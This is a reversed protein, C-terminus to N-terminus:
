ENIDLFSINKIPQLSSISIIYRKSKYLTTYEYVTKSNISYINQKNTKNFIRKKVNLTDIANIPQQLGIGLSKVISEKKCWMSYFAILAENKQQSTIYEIEEKTCILHLIDHFLFQKDIYEIDIGVESKKSIAIVLHNKTKSMNFFFPNGMLFPKGYINKEFVFLNTKQQLIHTLLYNLMHSSTLKNKKIDLTSLNFCVVGVNDNNLVDSKFLSQKM